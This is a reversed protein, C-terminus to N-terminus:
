QSDKCLPFAQTAVAIVRDQGQYKKTIELVKSQFERLAEVIEKYGQASVATITAQLFREHSKFDSIATVAKNLIQEHFQRMADPNVRDNVSSRAVCLQWHGDETAEILKLRELRGLAEFVCEVSLNLKTALWELGATIGDLRLLELIALHYWDAILKFDDGSFEYVAPETKARELRKRALERQKSCRSFEADVFDCWYETQGNALSLKHCINRTSSRSIGHRGSLVESLRSPSLDIDRAFARLSYSSNRTIRRQLESKLFAAFNENKSSAAELDSMKKV